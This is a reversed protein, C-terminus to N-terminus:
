LQWTEKKPQGNETNIKGLNKKAEYQRMVEMAITIPSENRKEAENFLYADIAADERTYPKGNKTNGSKAAVEMMDDVTWMTLSELGHIHIHLEVRGGGRMKRATKPKTIAKM